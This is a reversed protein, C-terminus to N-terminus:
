KDRYTLLSASFAAYGHAFVVLPYSGPTSPYWFSTVLTRDPAAFGSILETAAKVSTVPGTSDM